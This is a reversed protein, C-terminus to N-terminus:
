RKEGARVSRIWAALAPLLPPWLGLPAFCTASVLGLLLTLGKPWRDALLLLRSSFGTVSAARAPVAALRWARYRHRVGQGLFPFLPWLKGSLRRPAATSADGNDALAGGLDSSCVDSSWDSIRM